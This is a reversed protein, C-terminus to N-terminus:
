QGNYTYPARESLFTRVAQKAADGLDLMRIGAGAPLKGGLLARTRVWMVEGSTTFRPGAPLRLTAKVRTGVLPPLSTAIFVGVQQGTQTKVLYFNHESFLDIGVDFAPESEVARPEEAKTLEEDIMALLDSPPPAVRRAPLPPPSLTGGPPGLPTPPPALVAAPDTFLRPKAVHGDAGLQLARRGLEPDDAAGMLLLRAGVRRRAELVVRMAAERSPGGLHEDVLVIGPRLVEILEPTLGADVSVGEADYGAAAFSARLAERAARDDDVVLIRRLPPTPPM